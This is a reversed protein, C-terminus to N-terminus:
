HDNRTTTNRQAVLGSSTMLARKLAGRKSLTVARWKDPLRQWLMSSAKSYPLTSTKGKPSTKHWGPLYPVEEYRPWSASNPGTRGWYGRYKKTPSSPTHREFSKHRNKEQLNNPPLLDPRCRLNTVPMSLDTLQCSSIYSLLHIATKM